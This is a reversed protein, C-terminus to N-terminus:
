VHEISMKTTPEADKNKMYDAYTERNAIASLWDKLMFHSLLHQLASDEHTDFEDLFDQAIVAREGSKAKTLRSFFTILVDFFPTSTKRYYQKRKFSSILNQIILFDQTEYHSILELTDCLQTYVKAHQKVSKHLRRLYFHAKPPNKLRLFTIALLLFCHVSKLSDEQEYRKIHQLLKKETKQILELHNFKFYSLIELYFVSLYNYQLRPIKELHDKVKAIDNELGNFENTDIKADIYAYLNQWYVNPFLKQFVAKKEYAEIITERVNLEKNSLGLLQYLKAIVMKRHCKESFSEEKLVAEQELYTELLETYKQRELEKLNQFFLGQSVQELAYAQQRYNKINFLINECDALDKLSAQQEPRGEYVDLELELEIAKSLSSFQEKEKCLKKLRNLKDKAPTFLQRNLLLDIEELEMKIKSGTKKKHHYITLSKLILDKLQVKYVKLNKSLKSDLFNKKVVEENYADQSNIFDFLDTMLSKESAFHMKFYRKESATM